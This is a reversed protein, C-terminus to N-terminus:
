RKLSYMLRCKTFLWHVPKRTLAQPQPQLSTLSPTLLQPPTSLVPWWTGQLGSLVQVWPSNLLGSLNGKGYYQSGNWPHWGRERFINMLLSQPKTKRTQKNTKLKRRNESTLKRLIKSEQQNIEIKENLSWVKKLPRAIRQQWKM